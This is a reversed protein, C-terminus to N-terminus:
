RKTIVKLSVIVFPSFILLIAYKLTDCISLRLPV